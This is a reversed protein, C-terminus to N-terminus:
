SAGAKRGAAFSQSVLSVLTKRFEEPSWCQKEYAICMLDIVTDSNMTISSKGSAKAIQATLAVRQMEESIEATM